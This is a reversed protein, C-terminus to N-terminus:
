ADAYARAQLSFLEHYTGGRAMLEAHTGTEAVRGEDLAVIRDAGIVSSLRHAFILTTRGQM